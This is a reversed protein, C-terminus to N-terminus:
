LGYIVSQLYTQCKGFCTIDQRVGIKWHIQSYLYKSEILVEKIGKNVQMIDSQVSDVIMGFRNLSTEIIGVRRELEEGIQGTNM